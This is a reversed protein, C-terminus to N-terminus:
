SHKDKPSKKINSAGSLILNQWSRPRCIKLLKEM